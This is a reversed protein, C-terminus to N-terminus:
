WGAYYRMISIFVIAVSFIEVRLRSFYHIYTRVRRSPDKKSNAATEDKHFQLICRSNTADSSYIDYPLLFMIQM